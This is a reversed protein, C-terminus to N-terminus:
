GVPPGPEDETGGKGSGCQPPGDRESVGGRFSKLGKGIAGGIEPLKGV